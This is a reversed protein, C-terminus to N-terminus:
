NINTSNVLKIHNIDDFLEYINESFTEAMKIPFNEYAYAICWKGVQEIWRVLKESPHNNAMYYYNFMQIELAMFFRFGQKEKESNMIYEGIRASLKYKKSANLLLMAAMAADKDGYDEVLILLTKLYNEFDEVSYYYELNKKQVYQPIIRNYVENNSIYNIAKELGNQHQYLELYDILFNETGDFKEKIDELLLECAKYDKRHIKIFLYIHYGTYYNPYKEIIIHSIKEAALLQNNDILFMAYESKSYLEDSESNNNEIAEKFYKEADEKNGIASESKALLVLMNSNKYGNEYAVRFCEGAFKKQNIRDMCLGFYFYLKGDCSNVKLMESIRNMAQEIQNHYINNEIESYCM